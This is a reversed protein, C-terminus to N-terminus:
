YPLEVEEIEIFGLGSERDSGNYGVLEITYTGEVLTLLMVADKPHADFLTNGTGVLAARIKDVDTEVQVGAATTGQPSAWDDNEAIVPLTGGYRLRLQPDSIALGDLQPDDTELHPGKGIILVRKPVNGEIDIGGIMGFFTTDSVHGRASLKRIRLDDNTGDIDEADYISMVVEGDVAEGAYNDKANGSSPAVHPSVIFSYGVDGAKFSDGLIASDRTDAEAYFVNGRGNASLTDMETAGTASLWDDNFDTFAGVFQDYLNMTPDALFVGDFIGDPNNTDNGSVQFHLKKETPAETAGDALIVGGFVHKAIEAAVLNSRVSVGRFQSRESFLEVASESERFAIGNEAVVRYKYTLGAAITTDSYSEASSGVEGVKIWDSSGVVQREITYGLAGTASDWRVINSTPTATDPDTMVDTLDAITEGSELSAGAVFASVFTNNPQFLAGEAYFELQYLHTDDAPLTWPNGPAVSKPDAFVGFKAPNSSGDIPQTSDVNLDPYWFLALPDGETWNVTDFTRILRSGLFEGDFGGGESFNWRAVEMDDGQLFTTASPLDFGDRETDVALIVLGSNIALGNEDRLTGAAINISISGYCASALAVSGVCIGFKTKKFM